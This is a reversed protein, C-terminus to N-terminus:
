NYDDKVAALFDELPIGNLDREAITFENRIDITTSPM